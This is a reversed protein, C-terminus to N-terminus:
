LAESGMVEQAQITGPPSTKCAPRPSPMCTGVVKRVREGLRVVDTFARHLTRQPQLNLPLQRHHVVQRVSPIGLLAPAQSLEQHLQRAGGAEGDGDDDGPAM